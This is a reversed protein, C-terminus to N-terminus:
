TNFRVACAGVVACGVCGIAGRGGGATVTGTIGRIAGVVVVVGAIPVAVTGEFDGVGTEALM